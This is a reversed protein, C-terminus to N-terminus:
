PILHHFLIKSNGKRGKKSERFIFLVSNDKDNFENFYRIAVFKDM